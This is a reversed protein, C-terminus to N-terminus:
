VENTYLTKGCVKITCPKKAQAKVEKTIAVTKDVAASFLNKVKQVKASVEDKTYVATVGGVFPISLRLERM